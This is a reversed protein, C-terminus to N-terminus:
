KGFISTIFDKIPIAPSPIMVGFSLLLAVAFSLLGLIANITFDRWLKQKYLPIFEFIVLLAYTLVVPLFM